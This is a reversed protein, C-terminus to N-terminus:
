ELKKKEIYFNKLYKRDQLSPLQLNKLKEKNHFTKTEREILFFLKTPYVLRPQLKKRQPGSNHREM